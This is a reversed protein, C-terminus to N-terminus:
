PDPSVIDFTQFGLTAVSRDSEITIATVHSQPPGKALKALLIDIKESDGEVVAGVTGSPENWVQGVLGLFHAHQVVFRRFFVGQVHGKVVIKVQRM